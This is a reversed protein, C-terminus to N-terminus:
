LTKVMSKAHKNLENVSTKLTQISDPLDSVGEYIASVAKALYNVSKSLEDDFQKFTHELGRHMDDTFQNMSVALQKNVTTFVNSTTEWVQRLHEIRKDMDSLQSILNDNLDHVMNGVNAKEKLITQLAANLENQLQIQKTGADNIKQILGDTKENLENSLAAQQSLSDSLQMQSESLSTFYALNSELKNNLQLQKETQNVFSTGSEKLTQMHENFHNHFVKREETMKELLESISVHLSTNKETTLNLQNITEEMVSHYNTIKETYTNIQGTLATTKEVMNSQEKASDQMSQVLASMESHVRQQWEITTKLAEGLDRMHDGTIENLSNVFQDVMANIGEVQNTSVNDMMNQMITQTQELHPTISQNIADTIGSVMTPIMMETVFSQFDKMQKEQNVLMQSLVTSQEQTPFTIDLSQRLDHFSDLLKPLCSIKDIGQWVLSLFIGAISSYFKVKMGTLLDGIGSKMTEPDGTIHVGSVGWAIGFFTGIIGMALFSGPVAEVLKRKGFRDMLTDELFFDYVDPTFPKGNQKLQIFKDHYNKWSPQIYNKMFKSQSNKDIWSNFDNIRTTIDQVEKLEDLKYKIKRVDSKSKNYPILVTLLAIFFIIIMLLIYIFYGTSM